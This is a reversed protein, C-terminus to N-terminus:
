RVVASIEAGCVNLRSNLLYQDGRVGIGHTGDESVHVNAFGEQQYWEEVENARHRHQYIPSFFDFLNQMKERWTLAVSKIHLLMEIRQKVLFLPIWSLYILYQIRIPLRSTINIRIWNYIALKRWDQRHHIADIPHYVWIFCRGGGRLTRGIAKFGMRTDPCAVLVGACYLYDFVRDQLPPDLVSGQVFHLHPSANREYAKEIGFSLDLAVVEMGFTRAMEISLLGSGCGADFILKSKLDQPNRDFAKLFLSRRHSIDQGWNREGFRFMKWEFSFTAQIRKLNASM